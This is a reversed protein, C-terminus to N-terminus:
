AVRENQGETAPQFDLELRCYTGGTHLCVPHAIEITTDYHAATGEILGVALACLKRPSRYIMTLGGAPADQYTFDPLVADPHLKRVEVHIVDHVSKLFSRADHNAFFEPHMAAFKGLMYNGFGRVLVQADLGTSESMAAIYNLLESDPYAGTSVYVGESAPATTEILQDWVDYGFQEEVMECLITFVIGKM